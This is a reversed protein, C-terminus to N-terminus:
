SAKGRLYRMGLLGMVLLISVVLVDLVGPLTLLPGGGEALHLVLMAPVGQLGLQFPGGADPSPRALVSSPFSGTVTRGRPIEVTAMFTTPTPQLPNWRPVVLPLEIRGGRGWGGEVAYDFRLTLSDGPWAVERPISIAGEWYRPRLEELGIRPIEGPEERGAGPFEGREDLGM